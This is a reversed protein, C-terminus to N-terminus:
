SKRAKLLDKVTDLLGDAVKDSHVQFKGDAIASKIEEVKKADFTSGAAVQGELAQLQSSLSSLHVSDSSSASTSAQEIKKSSRTQAQGIPLNTAKKIADDIKM